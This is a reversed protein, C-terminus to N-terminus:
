PSVFDTHVPPCGGPLPVGVVESCFILVSWGSTLWPKYPIEGGLFVVLGEEGSPNYLAPVPWGPSCRLGGGQLPKFPACLHRQLVRNLPSKIVKFTEEVWFLPIITFGTVLLFGLACFVCFFGVARELLWRAAFCLCSRVLDSM